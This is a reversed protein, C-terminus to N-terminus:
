FLQYDYVTTNFWSVVNIIYVLQVTMKVLLPYDTSNRIPQILSNYGRFLDTMLREEEESCCGYESVFIFVLSFIKEWRIKCSKEQFMGRILWLWIVTAAASFETNSLFNRVVNLQQYLNIFSFNWWDM